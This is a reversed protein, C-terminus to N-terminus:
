WMNPDTIPGLSRFCARMREPVGKWEAARSKPYIILLGKYAHDLHSRWEYQIMKNDEATYVFFDTKVLSSIVKMAPAYDERVIGPNGEVHLVRPAQDTVWGLSYRLEDRLTTHKDPRAEVLDEAGGSGILDIVGRNKRNHHPRLLDAPYCVEAKLDPDAKYIRWSHRPPAAPAAVSLLLGSLLSFRGHM